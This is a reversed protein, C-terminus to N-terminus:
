LRIEILRVELPPSFLRKSPSVATKSASKKSLSQTDQPNKLYELEDDYKLEVDGMKVFTDFCSGSERNIVYKKVLADSQTINEFSLTFKKKHNMNFPQYRDTKDIPLAGDAFIDSYQVYNYLM